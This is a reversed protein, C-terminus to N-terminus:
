RSPKAVKTTAWELWEIVNLSIFTHMNELLCIIVNIGVIYYLSILTPGIKFVSAKTVFYGKRLDQMIKISKPCDKIM